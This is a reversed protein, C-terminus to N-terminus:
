EAAPAEVVTTGYDSFTFTVTVDFEDKGLVQHMNCTISLLTDGEAVVVIDTATITALGQGLIECDYTIAYDCLYEKEGAYFYETHQLITLVPAVFTTRVADAMEDEYYETDDSTNDTMLAKKGDFLFTYDFDQPNTGVMKITVNELLDGRNLKSMSEMVEPIGEPKEQEGPNEPYHEGNEVTVDAYAELVTSYDAM